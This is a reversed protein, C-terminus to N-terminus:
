RDLRPAFVADIVRDSAGGDEHPCFRQVFTRYRPRRGADDRGFADTIADALEETTTVIPGPAWTEYDFYMPRLDSRYHELDYAFLIIPKGTVAFDYIASSYDSVLADAALYLEAIEPHNSVDLARGAHDEVLRTTVVSHMRVLLHTSPDTASLFETWTSDARTASVAATTTRADDRWTPAYLM